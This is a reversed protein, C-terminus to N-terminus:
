KGTTSNDILTTIDKLSFEKRFTVIIDKEDFGMECLLPILTNAASERATDIIGMNPVENLVAERGQREYETLEEDNFNRRLISVYQKIDDHNIKTSTLMLHPDPLVIEIQKGNRKINDESLEGFDIYAKITADIPIAIKRNGLPLDFSFKQQMFKGGLKMKDDHTIIKHLKYETTYLRSCKKIQMVMMPLSDNLEGSNPAKDHSCSTHALALSFLCVLGVLYKWPFLKRM